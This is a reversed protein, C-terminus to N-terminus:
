KGLQHLESGYKIGVLYSYDESPFQWNIHDYWHTIDKQSIQGGAKRQISEVEEKSIDSQNCGM